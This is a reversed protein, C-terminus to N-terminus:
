LGLTLEYANLLHLTGDAILGQAYAKFGLLSMDSPIAFEHEDHGAGSLALHTGYLESAPNVLLEGQSITFQLPSAFVLVLSQSATPFDETQIESGWDFGLIPRGESVFTDPNIESGNYAVASALNPDLEYEFVAGALIETGVSAASGVVIRSGDFALARGFLAGQDLSLSGLQEWEIWSTGDFVFVYVTGEDSSNGQGLSDWRHAGVVAIDGQIDVSGGFLDGAKTAAGILRSEQTWVGGEGTWIYARGFNNNPVGVNSYRAGAMVRHGSVSVVEGLHDFAGINDSYLKAVQTWSGNALGPVTEFIYVAGANTELAPGSTHDAGVVIREHALDIDVSKGFEFGEGADNAVFDAELNWTENEFSFVYVVGEGTGDDFLSDDHHAEAGPAGVVIHNGDIALAQGFFQDAAVEEASLTTFQTWTTGDFRFVYVSGAHDLPLGSVPDSVAHSPAGVVAWEGALAVSSGFEDGPMLDAGALIQTEVWTTGDWDYVYALGEDTSTDTGLDARGAGVLMRDGDLAVAKSFYDDAEFDSATIVRTESTIQASSLTSLTLLATAVGLTRLSTSLHIM